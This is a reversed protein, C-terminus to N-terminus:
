LLNITYLVTHGLSKHSEFPHHFEELGLSYYPPMQALLCVKRNVNWGEAATM